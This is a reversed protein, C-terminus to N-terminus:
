ISILKCPVNDLYSIDYELYSKNSSVYTFYDDKNEKIYSNRVTFIINNKVILKLKPIISFPVHGELFVGCSIIYDFKKFKKVIEEDSLKLLNVNFINKYINKEEAKKIMNDSIDIGTINLDPSNIKLELGLLGTGCGFDLININKYNLKKILKCFYKVVNKPGCYGISDVYNEYSSAWTNYIKVKDNENSLSKNHWENNM